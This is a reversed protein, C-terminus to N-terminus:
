QKIRWHEIKELKSTLNELDRHLQFELLPDMIKIIKLNSEYEKILVSIKLCLVDIQDLMIQLQPRFSSHNMTKIRNLFSEYRKISVSIKEHLKQHARVYRTKIYTRASNMLERNVFLENKSSWCYIKNSNNQSIYVQVIRSHWWRLRDNRKLIPRAMKFNESVDKLPAFAQQNRLYQVEKKLDELLKEKKVETNNRKKVEKGNPINPIKQFYVGDEEITKQIFIPASKGNFLVGFSAQSLMLYNQLQQIGSKEAKKKCEVIIYLNEEVKRDNKFIAIDVPYRGKKDSPAKKVRWQPRTQIQNKKYFYDDTLIKCFPQTAEIEEDTAKILTNSIHDIIYEKKGKISVSGKKQLKQYTRAYRTKIYARASNMLVENVLLKNESSWRYTKNSNNQKIYAQVTKSRYWSFKYNRNLVIRAIKFEENVDQLDGGIRFCLEDRLCQYIDNKLKLSRLSVKREKAVIRLNELTIEHPLIDVLQWLQFSKLCDRSFKIGFLIIRGRLSKPPNEHYNAPFNNEYKVPWNAQTYNKTQRNKVEYSMRKLM